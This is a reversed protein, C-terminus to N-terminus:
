KHTCYYTQHAELTSASSFKIGCPNCKFAPVRMPMVDGVNATTSILVENMSSRREDRRPIIHSRSSNNEEIREVSHASRPSSLSPTPEDDMHIDDLVEDCDDEIEAARICKIHKAEPQLAPDSALIANLRLKPMSLTNPTPSTNQDRSRVSKISNPSTSSVETISVSTSPSINPSTGQHIPSDRSNDSNPKPSHIEISLPSSILADKMEIDNNKDDHDTM